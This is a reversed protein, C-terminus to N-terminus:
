DSLKVWDFKIKVCDFNNKVCDFKRSVYDLTIPDCSQSMEYYFFIVQEGPTTIQQPNIRIKERDAIIEARDPIVQEQNSLNSEYYFNIKEIGIQSEGM